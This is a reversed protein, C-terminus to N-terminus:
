EKEYAGMDIATGQKRTNGALDKALAANLADKVAASLGSPFVSIDDASAPYLGDDGANVAPSGVGLRYDGGATPASEPDQWSDFPSSAPAVSNRDDGKAAGSLSWTSGSGSSGQVISSSIASVSGADINHIGDGSSSLATNGWIVSNRIRPSSSSNNYMGGGKTGAYNGSITVNILVPLSSNNSMGGGSGAKNGSILVNTLVPSSGDNYIGGGQKTNATNGSITVNTLVPSSGTNYMGGGGLSSGDGAINGSITVNTLAPSSGNANYMGGGAGTGNGTIVVHDLVPSSADNHMGGGNISNNGSITVGALAPSSRYNYMGGGGGVSSAGASSSSLVVNTLSPASDHNYLGGGYRQSISNGDVTIDGAANAYGGTITLGDLATGSGAPINVGLVVHYANEGLGTYASWNDDGNFDGSLVARYATDIVTGDPNFRAKRTTEDIDEGAAAYGGRIEVGKRLIFVSDRAKAATAPDITGDSNPKYKPKYTGAGVKVILPGTYYTTIAALDDMMVQLDGSATEWSLGDGTGGERVYRTIGDFSDSLLGCPVAGALNAPITVARKNGSLTLTRGGGSEIEAEQRLYVTELTSPVWVTFPGDANLRESIGTGVLITCDADSYAKVGRNNIIVKAPARLQTTGTVPIAATFDDAEIDIVLVTERGGYIHASVTRAAVTRQVTDEVLATVFYVGAALEVTGETGGTITLSSLPTGDPSAINLTRSGYAHNADAPPYNVTYKLTGRIGAGTKIATIVITVPTVSGANVTVAASGTGAVTEGSYADAHVTWNGPELDVTVGGAWEVPDHTYGETGGTYEFRLAYRDFAGAPLATRAAGAVQVALRGKGAPVSGPGAPSNFMDVCSVLLFLLALFVPVLVTYIRKM